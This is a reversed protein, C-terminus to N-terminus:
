RCDGLERWELDGRVSPPGTAQQRRDVDAAEGKMAPLGSVAQNGAVRAQGQCTGAPDAQGCDHDDLHQLPPYVPRVSAGAWATVTRLGV